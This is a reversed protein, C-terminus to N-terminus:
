RRLLEGLGRRLHTKVLHELYDDSMRQKPLFGVTV